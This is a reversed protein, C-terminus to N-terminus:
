FNLTITLRDSYSGARADQLPDIRGFLTFTLTTSSKNPVTVSQTLTNTGPTNGWVLLRSADRFLNYALLDPATAHKLARSATGGTNLSPGIAMTVATTAPGGDRACTVVLVASSDTPAANFGDYVGLSMSMDSASCSTAAAAPTAALALVLAAFAELRWRM